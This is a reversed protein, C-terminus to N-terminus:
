ANHDDPPFKRMGLHIISLLKNFEFTLFYIDWQSLHANQSREKECNHIFKFM